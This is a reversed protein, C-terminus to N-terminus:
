LEEYYEIVEQATDYFKEDVLQAIEKPCEQISIGDLFNHIKQDLSKDMKAAVCIESSLNEWVTSCWDDYRTNGPLDNPSCNPPLNSNM